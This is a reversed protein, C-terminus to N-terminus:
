PRISVEGTYLIEENKDETQVVLRGLDDISLVKASYSEGSTKLVTVKKGLVASRSRYEEIIQEWKEDSLFHELVKATLLSRSVRKKSEKEISTAINSIDEPFVRDFVNIGIGCVTREIQGSEDLIGETLIGSIKRGDFVVDNVWKIKTNLGCTEEIARCVAVAARVTTKTADTPETVSKKLISMYIGVGGESNFSRGLRGRGANQSNAVFLACKEEKEEYLKARTNTSDTSDYFFIPIKQLDKNVIYSRITHESFIEEKGM